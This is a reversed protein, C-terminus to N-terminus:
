PRIAKKGALVARGETGELLQNPVRKEHVIEVKSSVTARKNVYRKQIAVAYGFVGALCVVVVVSLLVLSTTSDKESHNKDTM